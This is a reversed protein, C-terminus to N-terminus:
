ELVAFIDRMMQIYHRKLEQDNDSFDFLKPYRERILTLRQEALKIIEDMTETKLSKEELERIEPDFFMSKYEDYFGAAKFRAIFKPFAAAVVGRVKELQEATLERGNIRFGQVVGKTTADVFIRRMAADSRGTAAGRAPEDATVPLRAAAFLCVAFLACIKFMGSLISKSMKM